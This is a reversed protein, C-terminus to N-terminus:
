NTLRQPIEPCSQTRRVNQLKKSHLTSQFQILLPESPTSESQYLLQNTNTTPYFKQICTTMMKKIKDLYDVNSLRSFTESVVQDVIQGVDSSNREHQKELIAWVSGTLFIAHVYAMSTPKQHIIFLDTQHLEHYLWERYYEGRKSQLFLTTRPYLIEFLGLEMLSEFNKIANGRLFHRKMEIDLRQQDVNKLLPAYHKIWQKTQLPIMLDYQAVLRTARLLLFPDREFWSGNNGILHLVRYHLLDTLGMQLPDYVKGQADCYLANVTFARTKADQLFSETSTFISTDCCMIDIKMNAETMQYLGSVYPTEKINQAKFQTLLITSPMNTIVDVDAPLKGILLDRVAGGVILVYYNAKIFSQLMNTIANPLKISFTSCQDVTTQNFIHQNFTVAYPFPKSPTTELPATKKQQEELENELQNIRKFVEKLEDKQHEWEAKFTNNQQSQKQLEEMPQKFQEISQNLTIIYQSQKSLTTELSITKRIQEKLESELQSIQKSSQKLESKQHEWAKKLWNDQESQKQLKEVQQQLQEVSQDLTVISQSQKSLTAELSGTKQKQEKLEKELQNARKSEQKLGNKQHELEEKLVNNKQSEKSLKTEVTSTKRKQEKLESELSKIGKSTQELESIQKEMKRIQQTQEHLRIELESIIQENSKTSAVIPQQTELTPNEPASTLSKVMVQKSPHNEIKFPSQPIQKNEVVDLKKTEVASTQVTQMARENANNLSLPQSFTFIRGVVAQYLLGLYYGIFDKGYQFSWSKQSTTKRKVLYEAIFMVINQQDNKLAIRMATEGLNNKEDLSAGQSLLWEFVELKGAGAAVLLPTEGEKSRENLKAGSQLLTQVAALRGIGVAVLLPTRGVSNKAALSAGRQLLLLIVETHNGMAALHVATMGALNVANVNAGKDLLFQVAKLHGERATTMLATTGTENPKDVPTGKELLQKLTEIEGKDAAERWESKPM